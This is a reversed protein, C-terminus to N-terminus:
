FLNPERRARRIYERRLIKHLDGWYVGLSEYFPVGVVRVRWTHRLRALVVRLTTM